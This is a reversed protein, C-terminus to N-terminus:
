QSQHYVSFNPVEYGFEATCSMNYSSVMVRRGDPTTDEFEKSLEFSSESTTFSTESRITWKDGDVSIIVNPKAVAGLKRMM